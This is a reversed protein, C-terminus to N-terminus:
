IIGPSGQTQLSGQWVQGNLRQQLLPQPGVGQIVVEVGGQGRRISLSMAQQALAARSSFRMQPDLLGLEVTGLGVVLLLASLRSPTFPM